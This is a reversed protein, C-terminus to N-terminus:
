FSYKLALGGPIVDLSLESSYGHLANYQKALNNLKANGSFFDIIGWIQLAGGVASVIYSVPSSYTHNYTAYGSGNWYSGSETITLASSLIAGIATTGCGGIILWMGARKSNSAKHYETWFSPSVQDQRLNEGTEIFTLSFGSKKLGRDLAIGSTSQKKNSTISEETKVELVEDPSYFLVDGAETELLYSGDEQQMVFGSVNTGNKLELVQKIREQSYCMITLCGLIFVM